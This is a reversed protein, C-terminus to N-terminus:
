RETGPASVFANSDYPGQALSAVTRVERMIRDVDEEPCLVTITYLAEM